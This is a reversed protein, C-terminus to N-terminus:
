FLLHKPDEYDCLVDFIVKAASKVSDVYGQGKEDVIGELTKILGM